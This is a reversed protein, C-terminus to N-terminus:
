SDGTAILLTKLETVTFCIKNMQDSLMENKLTIPFKM